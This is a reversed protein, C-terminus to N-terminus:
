SIQAIIEEPTEDVAMIVMDGNAKYGTCIGTQYGKVFVSAMLVIKEPNIFMAQKESHVKIFQM